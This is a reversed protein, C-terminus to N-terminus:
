LNRRTGARYGHEFGDVRRLFKAAETLERPSTNEMRSQKVLTKVPESLEDWGPVQRIVRQRKRHPLQDEQERIMERTRKRSTEFPEDEEDPFQYIRAQHAKELRKITKADPAGDEFVEIPSTDWPERMSMPILIFHRKAKPDLLRGAGHQRM